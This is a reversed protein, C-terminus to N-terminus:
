TIAKSTFSHRNNSRRNHGVVVSVCAGHNSDCLFSSSARTSNYQQQQVAVTYRNQPQARSRSSNFVCIRGIPTNETAIIACVGSTCTFLWECMCMCLLAGDTATVFDLATAHSSNHRTDNTFVDPLATHHLLLAAFRFFLCFLCIRIPKWYGQRAGHRPVCGWYFNIARAVKFTWVM